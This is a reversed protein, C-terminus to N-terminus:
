TPFATLWWICLRGSGKFFFFFGLMCFVTMLIDRTDSVLSKLLSAFLSQPKRCRKSIETTWNAFSWSFSSSSSSSDKSIVDFSLRRIMRWEGKTMEMRVSRLQSTFNDDVHRKWEQALDCSRFVASRTIGEHSVASERQFPVRSIDRLIHHAALSVLPFSVKTTSFM